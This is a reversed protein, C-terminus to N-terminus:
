AFQSFGTAEDPNSGVVQRRTFSDTVVGRAGKM